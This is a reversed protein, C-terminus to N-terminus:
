KTQVPRVRYPVKTGDGVTGFYNDGWCWTTGDLCWACAFGDGVALQAAGEPGEVRAVGEGLSTGGTYPGDCWVARSQERLCMVDLGLAVEAVADFDAVETAEADFGYGWCFLKGDGRRGCSKTSGLSLQTLGSVGVLPAPSWQSNDKRGVGLRGDMTNQGWCKTVGDAFRACGFREHGLVLQVAGALAPVLVPVAAVAPTAVGLQLKDNAGWCKVAGDRLLACTFADGAALQVAGELDKVTTPAEVFGTTAGTGLRGDEALGWCKVTGDALRACSHEFGVAVEEVGTLGPVVTPVNLPNNAVGSGLAGNMNFGWCSATADPNRRCIHTLGASLVPRVPTGDDPPFASPPECASLGAALLLLARRM